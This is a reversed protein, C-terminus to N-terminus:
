LGLKASAPKAWKKIRRTYVNLMALSKHGTQDMIAADDAGHKKAETVFGARLSHGALQEASLGAKKAARKLIVAVAHDSLGKPGIRETRPVARFVPGQTVGALELWDKLSRVPCSAPDSGYAIVKLLGRGEQDRKSRRVLAEAGETVFALDRVELAVLESRRFAGAFGLTILARDRQGRLGAPLDEIMQRIDDATIPHKQSSAVGIRRRIGKWTEATLPHTSPSVHGSSRHAHAIASIAVSLTAVKLGEDARAALYLALTQPAAPLAEM